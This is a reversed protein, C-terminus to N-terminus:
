ELMKSFVHYEIEEEHYWGSDGRYKTHNCMFLKGKRKLLVHSQKGMENLMTLVKDEIDICDEPFEYKKHEVESTERIGYNVALVKIVGKTNM